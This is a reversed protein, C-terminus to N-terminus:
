EARARRLGVVLFCLTVVLGAGSRAAGALETPRVLTILDRYEGEYWLGRPLGFGADAAGLEAAELGLMKSYAGDFHGEAPSEWLSEAANRIFAGQKM